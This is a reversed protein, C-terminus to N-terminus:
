GVILEIHGLDFQTEKFYSEKLEALSKGTEQMKREFLEKLRYNSFKIDPAIENAISQIKNEPGEIEMMCGIIPWEDFTVVVDDKKLVKREKKIQFCIPYGLETLFMIYKDVNEMSIPIDLETRKSVNKDTNIDGKYTLTAKDDEIRIRIKKGSIFLSADEKDLMIDHQITDKIYVFGKKELADILETKNNVIARIEVELM